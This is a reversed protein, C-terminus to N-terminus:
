HLPFLCVVQFHHLIIITFHYFSFDQFCFPSFAFDILLSSSYNFFLYASVFLLFISILFVGSSILLLIDSVSSRILSRSSFITSFCESFCFLTFFFFFFNFLVSSLRLSRQSLISLFFMQIISTGSYSSFFFPYSFIKSSTITSFKGLMSSSSTLWTWSAFLTGCLIFGLLFVDLCM